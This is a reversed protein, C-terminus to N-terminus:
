TQTESPKMSKLRVQRLQNTLVTKSKSLAELIYEPLAM